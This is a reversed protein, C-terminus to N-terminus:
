FEECVLGGSSMFVRSRLEGPLHTIPAKIKITEEESDEKAKQDKEAKSFGFLPWGKLYGTILGGAGVLTLASGVIFATKNPYRPVKRPIRKDLLGRKLIIPHVTRLPHSPKVLFVCRRLLLTSM